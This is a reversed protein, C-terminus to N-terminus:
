DSPTECHYLVRDMSELDVLSDGDESLGFYFLSYQQDETEDAPLTVVAVKPSAVVLGSNLVYNETHIFRVAVVRMLM